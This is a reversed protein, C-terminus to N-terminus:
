FYMLGVFPNPITQLVVSVPSDPTIYPSLAKTLPIFAVSLIGINALIVLGPTKSKLELARGIFTFISRTQKAIAPVQIPCDLFRYSVVEGGNSMEVFTKGVTIM